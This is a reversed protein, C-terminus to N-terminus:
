APENEGGEGHLAAVMADAYETRLLVLRELVKAGRWPGVCEDTCDLSEIADQWTVPAHAAFYERLAMGRSLHIVKEGQPVEQNTYPDISGAPIEHYYPFANYTTM